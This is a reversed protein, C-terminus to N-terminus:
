KNVEKYLVIFKQVAELAKSFDSFCPFLHVSEGDDTDILLVWLINEKINHFIRIDNYKNLELQVRTHHLSTIIQWGESSGVKEFWEKIDLTTDM